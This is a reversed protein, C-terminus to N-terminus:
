NSQIGLTGFFSLLKDWAAKSFPLDKGSWLISSGHVNDETTIYNVNKPNNKSLLNFIADSYGAEFPATVFMTPATILSVDYTISNVYDGPSFCVVGVVSEKYKNASAFVLSTSYSSGWLVIKKYGLTTTGYEIAAEVDVLADEWNQSLKQSAALAATENYVGKSVEGSRQDVALFAYHKKAFVPAINRYEGRSYNSQHFAIILTDCTKKNYPKYYDATVKLGDKANFQQTEAEPEAEKQAAIREQEAKEMAAKEKAAKEKAAKEKAAKEKAAKEKAAKEKAAKELAAKEAKTLPKTQSQTATNKQTGATATGSAFTTMSNMAIVVSAMLVYATLKKLIRGTFCYRMRDM